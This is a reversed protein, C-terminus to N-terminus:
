GHELHAARRKKKPALLPVFSLLFPVRVGPALRGHSPNRQRAHGAARKPRVAACVAREPWACVALGPSALGPWACVALRVRCARALRVISGAVGGGQV